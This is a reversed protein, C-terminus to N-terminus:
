NLTLTRVVCGGSAYVHVYYLGKAHQSTNLKRHRTNVPMIDYFVQRGLQDVIKIAEIPVAADITVYEQAPNPYVKLWTDDAIRDIGTATKAGYKALFFKGYYSGAANPTNTLLKSDLAVTPSYFSGTYYIAGDQRVSLGSGFDSYMGGINLANTVSGDSTYQALFADRNGQLTLTITDFTVTSVPTLFSYVYSGSISVTGSQDVGIGTTFVTIDTANSKSSRAWVANGMQNYKAVFCGGGEEDLTLNDLEITDSYTGTIYLDGKGDCTLAGLLAGSTANIAENWAVTGANSYKYIKIQGGNTIVGTDQYMTGTYFAGQPSTCLSTGFDDKDPSGGSSAWVADGNANFRTVFYDYSTASADSNNVTIGDLVLSGQNFSGAMLINNTADVELAGYDMYYGPAASTINKAWVLNGATTFKALFQTYQSSSGSLTTSGISIVGKYSGTCYINGTADVGILEGDSGGSRFSKAWLFNGDRDYKAMFITFVDPNFDTLSTPSNSFGLAENTSRFTGIVYANGSQDVAPRSCRSAVEGGAGSNAWLWTKVPQAQMEKLGCLFVLALTAAYWAKRTARKQFPIIWSLRM